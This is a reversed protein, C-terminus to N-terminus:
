LSILGSFKSTSIESSPIGFKFNISKPKAQSIVSFKFPIIPVGM